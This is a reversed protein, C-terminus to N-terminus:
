HITDEIRKLIEERSLSMNQCGFAIEDITSTTFFQSCPNQFVSGVKEGIKEIALDSTKEKGIWVKGEMHGEHFYPILGNICQALTLKGCGSKGTVLLFQGKPITLQTDKLQSKENIDQYQYVVTNFKIM